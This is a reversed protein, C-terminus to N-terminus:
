NKLTHSELGHKVCSNSAKAGAVAHHESKWQPVKFLAYMTLLTYKVHVLRVESRRAV